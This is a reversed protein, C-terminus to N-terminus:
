NETKKDVLENYKNIVRNVVKNLKYDSTDKNLEFGNGYSTKFQYIM